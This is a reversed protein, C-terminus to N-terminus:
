LTKEMAAALDTLYDAIIENADEEKAYHNAFSAFEKVFRANIEADSLGTCDGLDLHKYIEDWLVLCLEVHGRRANCCVIFPLHIHRENSDEFTDLLDNIKDSMWHIM